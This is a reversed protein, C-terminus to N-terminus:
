QLYCNIMYYFTTVLAKDRPSLDDFWIMYGGHERKRKEERKWERLERYYKTNGKVKLLIELFKM